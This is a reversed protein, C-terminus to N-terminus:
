KRAIKSEKKVGVTATSPGAQDVDIARKRLEADREAWSRSGTVELEDEKLTLPKSEPSSHSWGFDNRAKIVSTYSVGAELGTVVCEGTSARHARAVGGRGLKGTAADVVPHPHLGGDKKVFVTVFESGPPAAWRVRLSGTGEEGGQCLSPGSLIGPPAIDHVCPRGLLMTDINSAFGGSSGGRSTSLGFIGAYM